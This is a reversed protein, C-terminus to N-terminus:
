GRRMVELSQSAPVFSYSEKDGLDVGEVYMDGFASWFLVTSVALLGCDEMEGRHRGSGPNVIVIDGRKLHQAEITHIM